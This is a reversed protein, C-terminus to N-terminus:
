AIGNYAADDDIRPVDALTPLGFVGQSLALLKVTGNHLLRRLTDEDHMQLAPAYDLGVRRQLARKAVGELFQLFHVEIVNNGM